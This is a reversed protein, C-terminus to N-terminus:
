FVELENIKKLQKESLIKHERMADIMLAWLKREKKKQHYGMEKETMLIDLKKLMRDQNSLSEDWFQTFDDKLESLNQEVVELHERAAVNELDKKTAFVGEMAPLLVEHIDGVTLPKKDIEKVM